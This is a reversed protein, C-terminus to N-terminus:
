DKNLQEIAQGIEAVDQHDIYDPADLDASTIRESLYNNYLNIMHLHGDNAKKALEIAKDREKTLQELQAVLEDHSNVAHIVHEIFKPRAILCCSNGSLICPKSDNDIYVSRYGKILPLEFIDSMKMESM